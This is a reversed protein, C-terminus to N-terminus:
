LRAAVEASTPMEVPEPQPALGEAGGIPARADLVGIEALLKRLEKYTELLEARAKVVDGDDLADAAAIAGDLAALASRTARIAVTVRQEDDMSPHRNFFATSGAEAVDLVSGVMQAGQAVRALAPLLGSCALLACALIAARLPKM